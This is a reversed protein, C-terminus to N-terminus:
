RNKIRRTKEKRKGSEECPGEPDHESQMRRSRVRQSHEEEYRCSFLEGGYMPVTM